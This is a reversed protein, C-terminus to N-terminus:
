GARELFQDVFDGLADWNTFDHDRESIAPDNRKMVIFKVVQEQFYDYETYRLAGELLLTARPQWGTVSFFSDVYEQAEARGDELAASLSVSIFASPKANLLDHHAFAFNVVADQHHKQHVSAAIIIAQFGDLKLDPELAASDLIEVQHGRERLRTETWIAIKRTQGETTGYVILIKM